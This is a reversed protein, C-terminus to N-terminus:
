VDARVSVRWQCIKLMWASTGVYRIHSTDPSRKAARRENMKMEAPEVADGGDSNGASAL